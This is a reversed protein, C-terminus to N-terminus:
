DRWTGASERRIPTTAASYVEAGPEEDMTLLYLGVGAALVTKGCKRPTVVLAKRFRRLDKENVWGFITTLLFCQWPELVITRSTWRGKVHPLREIFACVQAARGRDFHWKWATRELDNLQRQCARRVWECAPIEGAVVGNAYQLALGCYDPM